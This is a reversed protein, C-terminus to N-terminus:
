SYINKDTVIFISDTDKIKNELLINHFRNLNNNIYVRHKLELSELIIEKM